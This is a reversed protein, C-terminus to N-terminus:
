IYSRITKNNGNQKRQFTRLQKKKDFNISNQKLIYMYLEVM